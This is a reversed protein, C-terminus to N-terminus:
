AGGSDIFEDNSDFAGTAIGDVTDGQFFGVGVASPKLPTDWGGTGLCHCERLVGLRATVRVHHEARLAAVGSPSGDCGLPLSWLKVDVEVIVDLKALHGDCGLFM